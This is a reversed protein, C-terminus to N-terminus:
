YAVLGSLEQLQQKQALRRLWTRVAPGYDFRRGAAYEDDSRHSQQEERIRARLGQQNRCITQQYEQLKKESCTQYDDLTEQPIAAADIAERTLSLSADPGLVTEDLVLTDSSQCLSTVRQNLIELKRVNVALDNILDPLPDRVLGLISFEIEEEEYAAMRDLLNPKILELWDDESCEGLARPQRELGDFKWLQGMVPMFAIFHFTADSEEFAKGKPGKKRTTAETKLQLDSNLIDMKRAYSNHIRKVFEFNNIADGRLAPTFPMTFKKFSRLNEGLDIDPINNVINLLAVSACANNATQNAFWLGDPCTAEQKGGNDERWRFLFILGYVPNNLLAMMEEDLSVVEQIMIGPESEIECFGNWSDKELRSAPQCIDDSLDEPDTLRRRKIRSGM